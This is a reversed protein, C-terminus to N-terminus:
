AFLILSGQIKPFIKCNISFSCIGHFSKICHLTEVNFIITLFSLECKSNTQSVSQSISQNTMQYISCIKMFFTAFSIWFHRHLCSLYMKKKSLLIFINMKSILLNILQNISHKILQNISQSSAENAIHNLLFAMFKHWILSFDRHLHSLSYSKM